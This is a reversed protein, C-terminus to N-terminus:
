NKGRYRCVDLAKPDKLDTIDKWARNICVEPQEQPLCPEFATKGNSSIEHFDICNQYGEIFEYESPITSRGIISILKNLDSIQPVVSYM